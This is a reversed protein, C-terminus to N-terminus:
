INTGTQDTGPVVVMSDEGNRLQRSSAANSPTGTAYAWAGASVPVDGARGAAGVGGAGFSSGASTVVCWVSSSGPRVNCKLAVAPAIRSTSSLPAGRASTAKM